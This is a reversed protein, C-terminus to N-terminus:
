VKGLAKMMTALDHLPHNPDPYYRRFSDGIHPMGRFARGTNFGLKGLSYCRGSFGTYEIKENCSNLLDLRLWTLNKHGPDRDWGSATMGGALWAMNAKRVPLDCATQYLAVDGGQSQARMQTVKGPNQNDFNWLHNQGHVVIDRHYRLSFRRSLWVIGLINDKSNLSNKDRQSRYFLGPWAELQISQLTNDIMARDDPYILGVKDMCCFTQALVLVGNDSDNSGPFTGRSKPWFRMLGDDALYEEFIKKRIELPTM